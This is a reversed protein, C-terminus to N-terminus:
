CRKQIESPFTQCMELVSPIKTWSFPRGSQGSFAIPMPLITLVSFCMGRESAVEKLEGPHDCQTMGLGALIYIFLLYIHGAHGPDTRPDRLPLVTSPCRM